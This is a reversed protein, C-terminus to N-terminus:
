VDRGEEHVGRDGEAMTESNKSQGEADKSVEMMKQKRKRYYRANIEKVKEPNRQRWERAKRTRNEKREQMIALRKEETM